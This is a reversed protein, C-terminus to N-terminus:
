NSFTRFNINKGNINIIVFYHNNDSHGYPIIQNGWSEKAYDITFHHLLEGSKSIIYTENFILCIVYGNDRSLFQAM